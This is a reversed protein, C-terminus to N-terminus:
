FRKAGTFRRAVQQEWAEAQILRDLLAISGQAPPLAELREHLWARRAPDRMGSTDLALTGCYIRKLQRDLAAVDRAGLVTPAGVGLEDTGNLGFAAPALLDQADVSDAIGLPDLNACRHGEARHAAIWRQVPPHLRVPATADTATSSIPAHGQPHPREAPHNAMDM